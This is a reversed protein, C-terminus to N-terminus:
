APPLSLPGVTIRVLAGLLAGLVAFALAYHPEQRIDQLIRRRKPTKDRYRAQGYVAAALILSLFREDGTATAFFGAALGVAAAHTEAHYSFAGDRETDDESGAGAQKIITVLRQFM